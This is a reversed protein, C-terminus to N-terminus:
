HREQRRQLLLAAGVVVGVTGLLGLLGLQIVWAPVAGDPAGPSGTESALPEWTTTGVLETRRGGVDVPVTWHVSAAKDPPPGPPFALRDDLWTVGTGAPQWRPPAAPDVPGTRPVVGRWRRDAVFTPSSVNVEAKPGALRAFPEGGGGYVVIPTSGAARLFMGPVRGPLLDAAIEAPPPRDFRPRYAGLRGVVIRGHVTHEAGGYRLPVQWATARSQRLRADFWGWSSSRSVLRWDPQPKPSPPLHTDPVVSLSWGASAVDGYVGASSIRLFARGSEDPVSLETPTPNAAILQPVDSTRVQVVVAAPLPPDVRDVVPTRRPDGLEHAAVPGGAALVLVLAVVGRRSM